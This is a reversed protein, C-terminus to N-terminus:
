QKVIAGGEVKYISHGTIPDGKEDFAVAGALGTYGPFADLYGKVLTGDNGVEAVANALIWTADYSTLFYAIYQISQGYKAEYRAVLDKVTQSGEDVYLTATYSGELYDKYTALLDTSTGAVDNLLFPGKLAMDQMQKFIVDAKAPTQPNIFYADPDEASLKTLQTKFDTDEPLYKEEVVVGGLERFKATFAGSIGKTYDQEESIMAVEEFGMSNALEALKTGQFADSPWNRYVYEGADSIAPSSSGPSFLIVEALETIASAALTESSCFGGLIVEVKDIDVLKQAATSADEGNCAGNEWLLSLSMGQVAWASNIDEVALEAARQMEVGYSAADGTLPGLAGLVYSGAVNRSCSTLFFLTLLASTFSILTLKSSRKNSSRM